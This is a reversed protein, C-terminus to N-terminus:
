QNCFSHSVRYNKEAFPVSIVRWARVLVNVILLRQPFCTLSGSVETEEGRFVLVFSIGAQAAEFPTMGVLSCSIEQVEATEAPLRAALSVLHEVPPTEHAKRREVRVRAGTGTVNAQQVGVTPFTSLLASFEGGVDVSPEEPVCAISWSYGGGVFPGNREVEVVVGAYQIPQLESLASVIADASTDYALPETAQPAQLECSALANSLNSHPPYPKGGATSAECSRRLNQPSRPQELQTLLM